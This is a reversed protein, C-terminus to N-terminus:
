PRVVDMENMLPFGRAALVAKDLKIKLPPQSCINFRMNGRTRVRAEMRLTDHHPSVCQLNAPYYSRATRKKQLRKWDLYLTAESLTDTIITSLLTPTQAQLALLM